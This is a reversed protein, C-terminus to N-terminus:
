VPNTNKSLQSGKSMLISTKNIISLKEYKTKVGFTFLLEPTIKVMGLFEKLLVNLIIAEDSVSANQLM